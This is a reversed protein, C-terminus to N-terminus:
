KVIVSKKRRPLEVGLGFELIATETPMRRTWSPPRVTRAASSRPALASSSARWCCSGSYRGYRQPTSSRSTRPPARIVVRAAKVNEGVRHNTTLMGNKDTWINSASGMTKCASLQRVIMREQILKKMAFVLHLTM